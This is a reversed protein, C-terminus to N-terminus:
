QQRFSSWKRLPGNAFDRGADPELGVQPSGSFRVLAQGSYRSSRGLPHQNHRLTWCSLRVSITPRSKRRLANTMPHHSEHIGASKSWNKNTMMTTAPHSFWRGLPYYSHSARPWILAQAWLAEHQNELSVFGIRLLDFPRRHPGGHPERPGKATQWPRSGTALGM